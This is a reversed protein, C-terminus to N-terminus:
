MLNKEENLIFPLLEINLAEYAEEAGTTMTVDVSGGLPGTLWKPMLLRMM